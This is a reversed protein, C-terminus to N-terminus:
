FACMLMQLTEFNYILGFCQRFIHTLFAIDDVVYGGLKGGEIGYALVEVHWSQIFFIKM